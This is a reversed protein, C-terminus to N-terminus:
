LYIRRLQSRLRGLCDLQIRLSCFQRLPSRVALGETASAITGVGIYASEWSVQIACHAVKLRQLVATALCARTAGLAPLSCFTKQYVTNENLFCHRSRLHDTSGQLSTPEWNRMGAWCCVQIARKTDRPVEQRATGLVVVCCAQSLM